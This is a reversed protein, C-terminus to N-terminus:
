GLLKIKDSLKSVFEDINRAFIYLGYPSYFFDLCNLTYINDLRGVKGYIYEKTKVPICLIYKPENGSFLTLLYNGNQEEHLVKDFIKKLEALLENIM